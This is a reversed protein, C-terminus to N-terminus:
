IHFRRKFEEKAEKTSLAFMGILIAVSLLFTVTAPWTVGLLGFLNLLGPILGVMSLVALNFGYDFSHKRDAFMMVMLLIQNVLIGLPLVYELAWAHDRTWLGVFILGLLTVLVSKTVKSTWLAPVFLILFLIVAYALSSLVVISWSLPTGDTLDLYLSVGSSLGALFLFLSRFRSPNKKKVYPTFHYTSLATGDIHELGGECLICKSIDTDYSVHCTKCYRM